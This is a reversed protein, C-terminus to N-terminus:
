SEISRSAIWPMRPMLAKIGFLLGRGRRPSACFPRWTGRPSILARCHSQWHKNVVISAQWTSDDYSYIYTHISPESVHIIYMYIYIHIIYVYMLIPVHAHISRVIWIYIYIYVCLSEFPSMLNSLVFLRHTYIYLIYIYIDICM